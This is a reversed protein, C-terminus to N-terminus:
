QAAVLQLGVGDDAAAVVEVDVAGRWSRRDMQMEAASEGKEVLCAVLTFCCSRSSINDDIMIKTHHM